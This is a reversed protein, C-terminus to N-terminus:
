NFVISHQPSRSLHNEAVVLYCALLRVFLHVKTRLLSVVRLVIQKAVLLTVLLLAVRLIAVIVEEAVIVVTLASGISFRVFHRM